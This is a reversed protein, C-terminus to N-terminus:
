GVEKTVGGKSKGREVQAAVIRKLFDWTVRLCQDHGLTLRKEGYSGSRGMQIM